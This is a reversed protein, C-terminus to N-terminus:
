ILAVLRKYCTCDKELDIEKELHFNGVCVCVSELGWEQELNFTGVCSFSSFVNLLFFHFLALL